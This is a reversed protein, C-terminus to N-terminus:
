FTPDLRFVSGALSLVYLEGGADEGFSSVQDVRGGVPQVDVSAGSRRLMQLNGVCFDAFVYAGQFGTAKTGRYVYGGTISCNGGAHSYEYIPDVNGAPRPGKEQHTGERLSWGYNEGGKSAAPQVDIEEWQDQGVDAIWLDGTARDFSIRWPNRLGFAWIESRAGARGALPNDAPVTYPAPGGPTPDIRLLKGLLTNLNQGLNNPDHESGGDGVGIYLHKDPGFALSGGNHNPHASHPITLVPVVATPDASAMDHAGVHVDGTRSTWYVYAFRGDPSFALGLLGQEFAQSLDSSVDVVPGGTVAGDVLKRVRGTKEAVYLAPDGPRAALATPREVKAVLVTHMGKAPPPATTTTTPPATTTPPRTTTTTTPAATTGRSCAGLVLVLVLVLMLSLFPARAARRM